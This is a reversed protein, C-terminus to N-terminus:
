CGGYKGLANADIQMATKTKSSAESWGVKPRKYRALFTDCELFIQAIERANCEANVGSASQCILL